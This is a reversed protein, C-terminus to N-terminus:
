LTAYRYVQDYIALCNKIPLTLYSVVKGSFGDRAVVHTVGYTILKENQDVHLKHGFYNAQYRIPNLRNITNSRRAEHGDPCVRKLSADVLAESVRFGRVALHGKMMKRGYSHGVQLPMLLYHINLKIITRM